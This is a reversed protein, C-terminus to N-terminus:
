HSVIEALKKAYPHQKEVALQFTSGWDDFLYYFMLAPGALYDLKNNLKSSRFPFEQM